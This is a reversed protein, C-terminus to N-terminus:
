CPSAPLRPAPRRHRPSRRPREGSVHGAGLSPVAGAAVKFGLPRRRCAGPGRSAIPQREANRPGRRNGDSQNHRHTRLSLQLRFADHGRVHRRLPLVQAGVGGIAGLKQRLGHTSLAFPEAVGARRLDGAPRAGSHGPANRDRRAACHGRVRGPTRPFSRKLVSLLLVLATLILIGIQAAAVLPTQWWRM